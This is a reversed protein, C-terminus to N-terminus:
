REAGTIPPSDKLHQHIVKAKTVTFPEDGQEQEDAEDALIERCATVMANCHERTYDKFKEDKSFDEFMDRTEEINKTWREREAKTAAEEREACCEECLWM